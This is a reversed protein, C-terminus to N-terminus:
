KINVLLSHSLELAMVLLPIADRIILKGSKLMYKLGAVSLKVNIIYILLIIGFLSNKVSTVSRKMPKVVTTELLYLGTTVQDSRLSAFCELTTSVVPM